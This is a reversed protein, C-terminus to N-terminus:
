TIFYLGILTLCNVIIEIYFVGFPFIRCTSPLVWTMRKKNIQRGVFLLCILEGVILLGRFSLCHFETADFQFVALYFLSFWVAAFLLSIGVKWSRDLSFFSVSVYVFFESNQFFFAEM